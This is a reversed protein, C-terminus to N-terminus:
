DSFFFELVRKHLKKNSFLLDSQVLRWSQGQFDTVKGGAEQVLLIGAAVDWPDIKCTWYIEGRGLAIWATEVGASGIKRLDKIKPYIKNFIKAIRKKNRENGECYFGYSQSLQSIPSVKIKKGNLYAGGGKKTFYFEDLAPANIVGIVLKNKHILAICVSFLPNGNAFNSTGDLSDIIWLWDPDKKKFGSEETLLSHSPYKKEIESVLFQDVIKDYKTAAEKSTTREKELNRDKKFNALLYDGAKRMLDKLYKEM